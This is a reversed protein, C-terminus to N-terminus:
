LSIIEVREILGPRSYKIVDAFGPSNLMRRSGAKVVMKISVMVHQFGEFPKSWHYAQFSNQQHRIEPSLQLIVVLEQSGSPHRHRFSPPVFVFDQL